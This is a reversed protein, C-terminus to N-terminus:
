VMVVQNPGYSDLPKPNYQDGTANGRQNCIFRMGGHRTKGFTPENGHTHGWIWVDRHDLLPMTTEVSSHDYDRGKVRDIVDSGYMSGRSFNSVTKATRDPPLTGSKSPPMHTIILIRTGAEQPDDRIKATEQRIWECSERHRETRKQWTQDSPETSGSRM